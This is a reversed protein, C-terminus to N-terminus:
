SAVRRRRPLLLAAVLALAGLLPLWFRTSLAPIAPPEEVSRTMSVLTFNVQGEIALGDATFAQYHNVNPNTFLAVDPAATLIAGTLSGSGPFLGDPHPQPSDDSLQLRAYQANGSGTGVHLRWLDTPTVGFGDWLQHFYNFSFNYSQTSHTVNGVTVQMEFPLATNAPLSSDFADSLASGASIPDETLHTDLIVYGEVVSGQGVFIGSTGTVTGVFDFRIPGVDECLSPELVNDCSNTRENCTDVTCSVGDDCDPPPGGQCGVAPDCTEAGNCFVGDDCGLFVVFACAGAGDCEDITCLDADADCSQAAPEFTCDSSCCDGDATNGDDCQEGIDVVGDGCGDDDVITGDGQDDAITANTPNSLVLRVIENGEVVLDEIIDVEVTKLTEGPDFTLTGSQFVFDAGSSATLGVTFYDVTTQVSGPTSLTVDFSLLQTDGPDGETASTDAVSLSQGWAPGATLGLLAALLVLAVAGKACARRRLHARQSTQQPM